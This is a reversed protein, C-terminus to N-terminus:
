RVLAPFAPDKVAKSVLDQVARAFADATQRCAETAVFGSNFEYYERVTLTKSNSSTLVLDINWSGGTMARASSFELRNVKGSLTVRAPAQAYASAVKLEDEFAKQIYQTHTLNDSVKLPGLARCTEEFKAPPAFTSIGIGTAGVAKIAMNNEASIAYRGTTPTECAALLVTASLIVLLNRFMLYSENKDPM